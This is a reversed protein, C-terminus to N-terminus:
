LIEFLKRLVEPAPPHRVTEPATQFAAAYKALTKGSLGAFVAPRCHRRLQWRFVGAAAALSMEDYRYAAMLYFLPSVEGAQYRQWAEATQREAEDVAQQTAFEEVAWGNSSAATYRGDRTAYVVKKQGGFIRSGDQPIEKEDM